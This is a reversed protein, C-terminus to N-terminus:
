INEVKCLHKVYSKEEYLKLMMHNLSKMDMGSIGSLYSVGRKM